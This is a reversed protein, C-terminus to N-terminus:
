GVYRGGAYLIEFAKPNLLAPEHLGLSSLKEDNEVRHSSELLLADKENEVTVMAGGNKKFYADYLKDQNQPTFKSELDIDPVLDIAELLAEQTFKFRGAVTFHGNNMMGAIQRISAFTIDTKLKPMSYGDDVATYAKVSGDNNATFRAKEQIPKQYIPMKDSGCAAKNVNCYDYTDLLRQVKPNDIIKYASEVKKVYWDPYQQILPQGNAKAEINYYEIQAMEAELAKIGNKTTSNIFVSRPLLDQNQGKHLKASKKALSNKDIYARHYILSRNSSLDVIDEDVEIETVEGNSSFGVFEYQQTVLNMKPKFLENTTLIQDQIYAKTKDYAVAHSDGQTRLAKYYANALSTAARKADYRTSNTANVGEQPIVRELLGDIKTEIGKDNNGAAPMFPTHSDLLQNITARGSSSVGLENLLEPSVHENRDVMGQIIGLAVTDTRADVGRTLQNSAFTSADEWGNQDAIAKM